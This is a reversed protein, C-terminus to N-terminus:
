EVLGHALAYRVLEVNNSFNMKEMVRAKHTSVTKNSIALKASIESVTDGKALMRMIDFERDTLLEHLAGHGGLSANFLVREALGPEIFHRGQAVKSVAALLIEPSSDKVVYGSAGAKLARRVTQSENHMSLVLIPLTADCARIRTILETGDMGPMYMDLLLLDFGGRQVAELTQVGNAAEGAVVIGGGLSFLRKMGERVVAHDDALLVRIM